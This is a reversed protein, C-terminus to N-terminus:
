QPLEEYMKLTNRWSFGRDATCYADFLPYDTDILQRIADGVSAKGHKMDRWNVGVISALFRMQYHWARENRGMLTNQQMGDLFREQDKTLM